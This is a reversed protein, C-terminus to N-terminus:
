KKPYRWGQIFDIIWDADRRDKVYIQTECRTDIIFMSYLKVDNIYDYGFSVVQDRQIVYRNDIMHEVPEPDPGIHAKWEDGEDYEKPPNSGDHMYRFRSSITLYDDSFLLFRKPGKTTIPGPGREEPIVILLEGGPM